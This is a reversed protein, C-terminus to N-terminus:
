AVARRRRSAVGLLGALGTGMLAYTSPEPVVSSTARITGSLALRASASTQGAEITPNDISLDNVTFTFAGATPTMFTFSRGANPFDLNFGGNGNARITGELAATFTQAQGGPQIGGPATFTVLLNFNGGFTCAATPTGTNPCTGNNTLTFFGLNNFTSPASNGLSLFGNATTNDFTSATYTVFTNPQTFSGSTSGAFRIEQAQAASAVTLVAVASLAKTIFRM